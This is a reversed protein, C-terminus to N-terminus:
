NAKSIEVLYQSMFDHIWKDTDPLSTDVLYTVIKRDWSNSSENVAQILAVLPKKEVHNRFVISAEESWQQFKVGALQATIAQFPLKRFADVLPQIKRISVVEHKGYDLEYVSVLGNTLIGKILVRYWKNEVKAAYLKNKQVTVPKGEAMSYYLIMEEMLVELNHLEQWPQVVFHGPHCAVSVYVDMHEGPKSLPLPPPMCITSVESSPELVTKVSEIICKKLSMSMLESAPLDNSKGKLSGVGSPAASLFVDKQHKWLDANTIQRNISRDPDPFNKPTFLYIHAIRKWDDLKVVKVSCDPCNLVTDRLWLVADPTWMGINLPLDALCCKTAQPPITIIERLFQPPIERLETVKVSAVTGTDMFQVDLARSSHVSTIEVRAWKGKCHFLCVKGCFPLSVSYDTMQKYRLYDELKQLIECLKVLGKSPLQCYITGDSCVNTVKVNTYLADVQLHLELSTDFLAKLCTANINIDDEGSTDYLVVLPIESKELIEVAFIKGCTQSEVIKVLVPDDCFVELGALKCKAAQFPLSYFQKDLKYVKNNEIFESFGYDVYCVKMRNDEVAIIQARLWADEEAHAAVLQGPNVSQMLLATPSQSYYEKMEDEMLEQAASYDKGVYRIVVENTNYLEVILVSPSAEAPVILPPVTLNEPCQQKAEEMLLTHEREVVAKIDKHIHINETVNLNEDVSKQPKAYLIAKKPNDCIQDVTCVDSLLDLNNLIDEPFKVKYADEYVKPLANAWLGSSYKLLIEAVKQKFDSNYSASKIEMIPQLLPDAKSSTLNQSKREHDLGSKIFHKTKKAPYLLVDTQGSTCATEVMCIHPWHELQKLVDTNLEEEYMEKYFQPIKSLWIGNSYKTLIGRIRNQFENVNSNPLNSPIKHTEQIPENLHDDSDVSPRRSLHVQLEKQFRPPLTLRKEPRNIMTVHRQMPAEKSPGSGVISPLVYPSTEMSPKAIGYSSGRSRQVTPIPRRSGEDPIIMLGPQRLTGKPKGVLSFPATNKLRMQCNVQRGVKKKSSRQRAVLQAIRATEACAVAHCTIEGMKNVEIRVVGPVSKLYGELTAHGLQKFPIWDGTLSKYEGQLKPLPVGNKHSQLVARLMKAVLDAEQM